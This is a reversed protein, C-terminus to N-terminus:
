FRQPTMYTLRISELTHVSVDHIFSTSHKALDLSKRFYPIVGGVSRHNTHQMRDSLPMGDTTQSSSGVRISHPLLRSPDLGTHHAFAKLTRNIGEVTVPQSPLGSLIYSGVAPPWRSLFNFINTVCNFKAGVPATYVTRPGGKGIADNKSSDLLAVFAEPLGTPYCEPSTVPYFKEDHAWKFFCSEGHLVHNLHPEDGIVESSDPTSSVGPNSSLPQLYEGPRLGLGFGLSFAAIYLLLIDSSGALWGTLCDFLRWMLDASLPIKISLRQPREKCDDKKWAAILYSYHKSRMVTEPLGREYLYTAVHTVYKDITAAKIGNVTRLYSAFYLFICQTVALDITFIDEPINFKM